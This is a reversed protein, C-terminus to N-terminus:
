SRGKKPKKLFPGVFFTMLAKGVLRREDRVDCDVVAIHAGMRVVRAEAHVTGGEVAELYNIKMEITAVRTGLPSAMYTALGGATDALAALVGGHVVGHVQKHRERVRMRLVVRGPEAEGLEFGFQKATSSTKLRERLEDAAMHEVAKRSRAM